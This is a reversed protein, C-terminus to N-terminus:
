RTGGRRRRSPGKLKITHARHVIRDLIADASQAADRTVYGWTVAVAVAARAERAEGLATTFKAVENRGRASTAEAINLLSSQASRRMQDALSRDYRAVADIIPKIHALMQLALDQVILAM